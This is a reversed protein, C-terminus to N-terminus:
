AMPVRLVAISNAAARYIFEQGSEIEKEVPSVHDMNEFSNGAEKDAALITARATKGMARDFSVTVDMAKDTVNVVKLIAENAQDDLTCVATIEPNQKLEGDHVVQGNVSLKYHNGKTEVTLKHYTDATLQPCDGSTITEVSWSIQHSVQSRGNQLEWKYHNQEDIREM